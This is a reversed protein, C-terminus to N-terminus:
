IGEEKPVSRGDAMGGEEISFDKLGGVSQQTEHAASPQSATGAYASLTDAAQDLRAVAHPMEHALFTSLSELQKLLPQVRTDFERNWIRLLKLKSEAEEVARRAKHVAARGDATADSLTSLRASFLAQQAQELDRNRRRLQSEWHPRRDSELWIRARFVEARVEELTPGAKALYNILSAKFTELSEVSTVDARQSM